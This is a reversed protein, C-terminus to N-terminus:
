GRELYWTMWRRHEEAALLELHMEIQNCAADEEGPAYSGHQV